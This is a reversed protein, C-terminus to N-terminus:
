PIYVDCVDEPFTEFFISTHYKLTHSEFDYKMIFYYCPDGLFGIGYYYVVYIEGNKEYAETCGTGLRGRGLQLIAKGEECTDLLSNSIIKTKGTDRRTVSLQNQLFLGLDYKISFLKSRNHDGSKEFDLSAADEEDITKTKGTAIDYVLYLGNHKESETQFVKFYFANNYHEVHHVASPVDIKSILTVSLPEYEVFVINITNTSQPAYAYAYAGDEKCLIIRCQEGDYKISKVDIANEGVCLKEVTLLVYNDSNEFSSFTSIIEQKEKPYGIAYLNIFYMVFLFWLGVVVIVVSYQAINLKGKSKKVM